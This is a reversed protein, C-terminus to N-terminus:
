FVYGLGLFFGASHQIGKFDPRYILIYACDFDRGFDFFTVRDLAELLGRLHNTIRVRIGAGASAYPRTKSGIKETDILAAGGGVFVYPSFGGPLIHYIVSGGVSYLVAESVKVKGLPVGAFGIGVDDTIRARDYLATGRIEFHRGSAWGLTVGWAPSRPEFLVRVDPVDATQPLPILGGFRFGSQIGVLPTLSFRGERVAAPAPRALSFALMALALSTRYKRWNIRM